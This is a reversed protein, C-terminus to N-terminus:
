ILARLRLLDRLGADLRVRGTSFAQSFSLDGNIMDILDDSTCIIRIDAEHQPSLTVQSLFGGNLQSCYTADLDLLTCGVTRDPIRERKRGVDHANFRDAVQLLAQLCEEQSAM